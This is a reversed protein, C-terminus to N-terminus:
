EERLCKKYTSEIDSVSTYPLKVVIAMVDNTRSSEVYQSEINDLSDVCVVLRRNKINKLITEDYKLIITRM